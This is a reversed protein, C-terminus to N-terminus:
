ELTALLLDPEERVPYTHSYWASDTVCNGDALNLRHSHNPCIVQGLM